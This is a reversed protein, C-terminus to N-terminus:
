LYISFAVQIAKILETGGSKTAGAAIVDKQVQADKSFVLITRRENKQFGYPVLATRHFEEM